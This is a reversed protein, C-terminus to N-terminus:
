LVQWAKTFAEKEEDTYTMTPAYVNILPLYRQSITQVRMTM